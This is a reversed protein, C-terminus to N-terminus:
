ATAESGEDAAGADPDADPGPGGPGPGFPGHRGGRFVPIEGNVFATAREGADALMEDAQEQTLDGATVKEDLREKQAAVVADVVTQVEVGKAAAIDAITQDDQLATRLEDETIGISEAVVSLDMPGGFGRHHFAGREPRADDLATAVADAQEQTITGDDVLGSLADQVWSVPGTATETAGALAPVGLVTGLLGGAAVSAAVTAAAITKRM